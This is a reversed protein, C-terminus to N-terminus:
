HSGKSCAPSSFYPLQSRKSGLIERYRKKLASCSIILPEDTKSALKGLQNLWGMRDVDNLPIGSEM